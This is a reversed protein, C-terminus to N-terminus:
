QLRATNDHYFSSSTVAHFRQLDIWAWMWLHASAAFVSSWPCIFLHPIVCMYLCELLLAQLSRDLWTAPALNVQSTIGQTHRNWLRKLGPERGGENHWVTEEARHVWEYHVGAPLCVQGQVEQSEDCGRGNDQCVGVPWSVEHLVVDEWLCRDKVEALCLQQKLRSVPFSVINTPIRLKRGKHQLDFTVSMWFTM